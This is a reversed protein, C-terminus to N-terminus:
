RTSATGATTADCATTRKRLRGNRRRSSRRAGRQVRSKGNEAVRVRRALHCGAQSTHSARRGLARRLRAHARASIRSPPDRLPSLPASRLRVRQTRLSSEFTNRRTTLLEPHRSPRPSPSLPIDVRLAHSVRLRSRFLHRFSSSRGRRNCAPCLRAYAPDECSCYQLSRVRLSCPTRLAPILVGRPPIGGAGRACAGAVM